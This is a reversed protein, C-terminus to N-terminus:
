GTDGSRICIHRPAIYNEKLNARRRIQHMHRVSPESFRRSNYRESLEQLGGPYTLDKISMICSQM